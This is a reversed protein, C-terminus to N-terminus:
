PRLGPRRGDAREAALRIMAGARLSGPGWAPTRVRHDRRFREGTHRRHLSVLGTNTGFAGRSFLQYATNYADQNGSAAVDVKVASRVPLDGEKKVVDPGGDLEGGDTVM